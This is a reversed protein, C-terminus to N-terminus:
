TQLLLIWNGHVTDCDSNLRLRKSLQVEKNAIGKEEYEFHMTRTVNLFERAEEETLGAAVLIKIRLQGQLVFLFQRKPIVIVKMGGEFIASQPKWQVDEDEKEHNDSM